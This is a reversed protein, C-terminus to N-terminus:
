PDIRPGNKNRKYILSRYLERGFADEIRKASSVVGVYIESVKVLKFLKM